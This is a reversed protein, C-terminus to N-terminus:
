AFIFGGEFDKSITRNDEITVKRIKVIIAMADEADDQEEEIKGDDM